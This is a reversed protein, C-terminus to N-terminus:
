HTTWLLYDKRLSMIHVMTVGIGIMLVMVGMAIGILALMASIFIFPNDRDYKLYHKIFKKIFKRNYTKAM